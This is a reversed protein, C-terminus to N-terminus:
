IMGGNVSVVQGTMYSSADACLFAVVSAVEEARGIRAMPVLKKIHEKPADQIMDTEILGPAVVNVRIGLRAVEAPQLFLLTQAPARNGFAPQAM